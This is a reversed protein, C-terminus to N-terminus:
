ICKAALDKLTDNLFRKLHLKAVASSEYPVESFQPEHRGCWNVKWNYRRDGCAVIEVSIGGDPFATGTSGDGKWFIENAPDTLIWYLQDYKNM